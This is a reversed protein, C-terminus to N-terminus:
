IFEKKYITNVILEKLAQIVSKKKPPAYKKVLDKYKIGSAYDNFFEQRQPNGKPSTHIIPNYKKIDEISCELLNMGDNIAKVLNLGKESNVVITSRNHYTRKDPFVNNYGHFDAITFDGTREISRYKCNTSCSPRLILQNLFLRNYDDYPIFKVQKDYKVMSVHHITRRSRGFVMKHRFEYTLEQTNFKEKLSELHENFIMPSGVGHCILDICLLNDYQKGRLFSHLGAIQCPVGSFVVKKGENLFKKAEAYCLGMDSQVYKSRRFKSINEIGIVYSHQIQSDRNECGFIVLEEPKDCFAKCIETFAGGSASARWTEEDKTLAAFAVPNQLKTKHREPDLSPCIKECLGCNICINKDAVPYKFGEKDYVMSICNKPCVNLCAGCATCDTKTTLFDLM